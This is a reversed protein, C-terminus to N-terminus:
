PHRLSAFLGLNNATGALVVEIVIRRRPGLEYLFQKRVQAVGELGGCLECSRWVIPLMWPLRAVSLPRRQSCGKKYDAAEFCKYVGLPDENRLNIVLVGVFLNKM